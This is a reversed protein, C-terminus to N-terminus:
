KNKMNDRVMDAAAAAGFGVFCGALIDSLRHRGRKVRSVGVVTSALMALATAAFCPLSANHLAGSAASIATAHGSPFSRYKDSLVPGHFNSGSKGKGPRERGLLRKLAFTITGALAVNETATLAVNAVKRKDVLSAAAYCGLALTFVSEPESAKSIYKTLRTSVSPKNQGPLALLKTSKQHQPLLFNLM